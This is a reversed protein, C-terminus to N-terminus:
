LKGMLDAHPLQRKPPAGPETPGQDVAGVILPYWSLRRDAALAENAITAAPFSTQEKAPVPEGPKATHLLGFGIERLNNQCRKMGEEERARYVSPIVLGVVTLLALLFVIVAIIRAM